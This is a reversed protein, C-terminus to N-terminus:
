CCAGLAVKSNLTITLSAKKLANNTTKTTDEEVEASSVNRDESNGVRHSLQM